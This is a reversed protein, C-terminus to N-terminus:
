ALATFLEWGPQQWRGLYTGQADCCGLHTTWGAVSELRHPGLSLLLPSEPGQSQALGTALILTHINLPFLAQEHGQSVPGNANRDYGRAEAWPEKKRCWM